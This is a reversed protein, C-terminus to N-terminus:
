ATQKLWKIFENINTTLVELSDNNDIVYDALRRKKLSSFQRKLRKDLVYKKM